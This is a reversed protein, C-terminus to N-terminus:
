CYWDSHADQEGGDVQPLVIEEIESGSCEVGEDGAQYRLLDLDPKISDPQSTGLTRRTTRSPETIRARDQDLKTAHGPRSVRGSPNCLLTQRKNKRPEHM